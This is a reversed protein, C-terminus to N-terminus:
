VLWDLWTKLYCYNRCNCQLKQYVDKSQRKCILVDGTNVKGIENMASFLITVHWCLKEDTATHNKETTSIGIFSELRSLLICNVVYIIILITAMEQDKM